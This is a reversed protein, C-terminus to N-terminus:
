YNCLRLTARHWMALFTTMLVGWHKQSSSNCQKSTPWLFCVPMKQYISVITDQLTQKAVCLDNFVCIHNQHPEFPLGNNFHTRSEKVINGALMEVSFALVMGYPVHLLLERQFSKVKLPSQVRQHQNLALRTIRLCLPGSLHWSLTCNFPSESACLYLICNRRQSLM